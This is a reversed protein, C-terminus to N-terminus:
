KIRKLEFEIVWVWPNHDLSEQGNISAWLSFFSNVPSLGRQKGTYDKYLKGNRMIDAAYQDIPLIGERVCDEPSINKLRECLINKIVLHYRCALKPMHISPKWKGSIYSHRVDTVGINDAKYYYDSEFGDHLIPECWSERVWLIDGPVGYPCVAHVNGIFSHMFVVAAVRNKSDFLVPSSRMYENPARNIMELGRTRRTHTKIGTATAQVMPTSFLIPRETM